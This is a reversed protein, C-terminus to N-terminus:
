LNLARSAFGTSVYLNTQVYNKYKAKKGIDTYNNPQNCKLLSSFAFTVSLYVSLSNSGDVKIEAKWMTAEEPSPSLLVAM